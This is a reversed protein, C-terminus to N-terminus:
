GTRIFQRGILLVCFIAACSSATSIRSMEDNTMALTLMRLKMRVAFLNIGIM